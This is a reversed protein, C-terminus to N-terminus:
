THYDDSYKFIKQNFKAVVNKILSLALSERVSDFLCLSVSEKKKSETLQIFVQRVVIKTETDNLYLTLKIEEEEILRAIVEAKRSSDFDLVYEDGCLLEKGYYSCIIDLAIHEASQIRSKIKMRIIEKSKIGNGIVLVRHNGSEV